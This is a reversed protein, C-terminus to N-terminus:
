LNVAYFPVMMEQSSLGGHRGLLPNENQWWWWLYSDGQPILVWDGLRDALMPHHQGYGFLGAAIAEKSPIPIFDNGFSSQIRQIVEHQCGARPFLYPLRNEGTPVMVLCDNIEKYQTLNYKDIKPTHIHGHDAALIFLTRGKSKKRITKLTNVLGLSFLEFERENRVDHPGFRHSLTDITEWYVYMYTPKGSQKEALTELSVFLDTNSRYPLVEVEPFLMKSLGSNAISANQLAFTEVGNKKLHPGFTKVPLFTLPDFGARRLGGVDGQFTFASHLIMNAITGFEKLWVEYGLIGHEAPHAGTWLTTLAASTTSPTISTIPALLSQDDLDKWPGNELFRSFFDLRVGDALLFIVHEYPGGLKELLDEKLARNGFQPIDLLHSISAPINVLSLGDYYPFIGEPGIELNGIRHKQILPLYESVLNQM